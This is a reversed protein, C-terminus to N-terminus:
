SSVSMGKLTPLFLLSPFRKACNTHHNCFLLCPATTFQTLWEERAIHIGEAKNVGWTTPAQRQSAPQASRNGWRRKELAPMWGQCPTNTETLGPTTNPQQQQGNRAKLISCRRTHNQVWDGRRLSVEELSIFDQGCKVCVAHCSILCARVLTGSFVSYCPFLTWVCM